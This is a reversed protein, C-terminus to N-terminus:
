ECRTFVGLQVFLVSFLLSGSCGAVRRLDGRLMKSTEVALLVALM